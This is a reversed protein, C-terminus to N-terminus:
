MSAEVFVSNSETESFGAMYYVKEFCNFWNSISYSVLLSSGNKINPYVPSVITCKSIVFVLIKSLDVAGKVFIGIMMLGLYSSKQFSDDVRGFAHSICFM